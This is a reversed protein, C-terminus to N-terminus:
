SLDERKFSNLDILGIQPLNKKKKATLHPLSKALFIEDLESVWLFKLLNYEFGVRLVKGSNENSNWKLDQYTGIPFSTGQRSSKGDM